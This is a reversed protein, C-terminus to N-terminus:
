LNLEKAKKDTLMKVQEAMVKITEQVQKNQDAWRIHFNDKSQSEELVIETDKHRVKIIM